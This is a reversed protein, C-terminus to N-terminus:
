RLTALTVFNGFWAVQFNECPMASSPIVSLLLGRASKPMIMCSTLIGSEALRTQKAILERIPNGPNSINEM